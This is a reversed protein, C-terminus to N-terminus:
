AVTPQFPMPLSLRRKESGCRVFLSAAIKIGEHKAIPASFAKIYVAKRARKKHPLHQRNRKTASLATLGM